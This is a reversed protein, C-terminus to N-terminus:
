ESCDKALTRHSNSPASSPPEKKKKGHGHKTGYATKHYNFRESVFHPAVRAAPLHPRSHRRSSGVVIAFSSKSVIPTHTQTQTRQTHRAHLHNVANETPIKRCDFSLIPHKMSACQVSISHAVTVTTSISINRASM